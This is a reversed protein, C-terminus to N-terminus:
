IDPERAAAGRMAFGALIHAVSGATPPRKMVAIMDM